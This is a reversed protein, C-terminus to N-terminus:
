HARLSPGRPNQSPTTRLRWVAAKIMALARQALRKRIRFVIRRSDWKRSGRRYQVEGADPFV